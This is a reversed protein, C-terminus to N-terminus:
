CEGESKADMHLGMTKVFTELKCRPLSKTLCDAIMDATNIYMLSIMGKQVYDRTFHYTVDIHKSKATTKQERALDMAGLNDGYILMADSGGLGFDGKLKSIWLAERTCLAQAIYEAEMSSCAVVRQLSSKWSFVTGNVLFLYGSTSKRSVSDGAWDSDTYGTIDLECNGGYTLKLDRTQKLYRLVSKAAKWHKTSAISAYRALKSVPFAIDPRTTVAAYMLCGVLERYPFGSSQEGELEVDLVLGPLMPVHTGYAERMGFRGIIKGIYRGQSISIERKERDRSIEIGLFSRAAQLDRTDFSEKLMQKVDICVQVSYGVILADDVYLLIFVRRGDGEIRIYLCPDAASRLFKNAQLVTDLAESWVKSAQKLGYLARQLKWVKGEWADSNFAGRLSEPLPPPDMFIDEELKGNLFATKIDIQELELDNVATYALLFRLTEFKTVPAFVDQYDVGAVQTFGKAVLRAKQRVVNGNADTKLGYVWKCRVTKRGPPLDQVVFVDNKIISNMEESMADIWKACDQSEMAKQFSEPVFQDSNSQIDQATLFALMSGDQYREPKRTQRRPRDRAISREAPVQVPEESGVNRGGIEEAHISAPLPVEDQESNDFHSIGVEPQHNSRTVPHYLKEMFIVDKSIVVRQLSPIFIRYTGNAGEYGVHIGDWVRAGLKGNVFRKPKKVKVQSGFIRLHALDPKTGTIIEYPTKDRLSTHTSNTLVRNHVYVVTSVAEHWLSNYNHIETILYLESLIARARQFVTRNIREARGNSEPSYPPTAQHEIGKTDYYSKLVACMYEKARDSRVGGLRKGTKNEAAELIAMLSEPVSVRKKMGKTWVAGSADDVVAILYREGTLSPPDIPGVVDTHVLELIDRKQKEVRPHPVATAKGACCENCVDYDVKQTQLQKLGNACGTSVMKNLTQVGTHCARRHMLKMGDNQGANFFSSDQKVQGSARMGVLESINHNKRSGVMVTVDGRKAIMRTSSAPYEISIGAAQVLNLSVLNTRISPMYAVNRLEITNIKGDVSQELRLSGRGEVGMDVDKAATMVSAGSTSESYDYLLERQHTMHRTACSDLFWTNSMCGDTKMFAFQAEDRREVGDPTRALWNELRKKTEQSPKLNSRYKQSKTNFYCDRAFHGPKACIFCKKSHSKTGNKQKGLFNHDSRNSRSGDGTMFSAGTSEQKRASGSGERELEDERAELRSVMEEFCLGTDHQLITKIISYPEPLGELLAFRKDDNSLELGTIALENEIEYISNVYSRVSQAPDMCLTLVRRRLTLQSAASKSKHMQKLKDWVQKPEKKSMVAAVFKTDINLVIEAMCQRSEQRSKETTANGSSVGGTKWM